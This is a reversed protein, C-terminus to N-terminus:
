VVFYITNRETNFPLSSVKKFKLGHLYVALEDLGNQVTTAQLNSNINDYNIDEANSSGFCNGELVISGM